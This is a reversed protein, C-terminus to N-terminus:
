EPEGSAADVLVSIGRQVPLKIQLFISSRMFNSPKFIERKFWEPSMEPDLHAYRDVTRHPWSESLKEHRELKKLALLGAESMEKLAGSLKDLDLGELEPSASLVNVLSAHNDRWETLRTELYLRDKEAPNSVYRRATENFTWVSLSEPALHDIYPSLMLPGDYKAEEWDIGVLKLLLGLRSGMMSAFMEPRSVSALTVVPPAREPGLLQLFWHRVHTEHTFGMADLRKSHVLLRDYLQQESQSKTTERPSWLLEAIAISRPWIRMDITEPDVSETWVAAEGGLLDVADNAGPLDSPDNRYHQWATQMHDLYFGVNVVAPHKMEASSFAKTRWKSIAADGPHNGEAVEDWGIATRGAEKVFGVYKEMFWSKLDAESAFGNDQMFRQIEANAKWASTDVEDGGVHFYRDPFLAIMETIVSEILALNEPRVPNLPDSFLKEQGYLTQTKGPTSSLQPYAIQWSKSHGPLDFEPVVRVGRDAAYEILASIQDQTYHNGDSGKRHLEPHTKSEVRFGQDDSLHWHLVNMKYRSMADVQRQIVPLPMWHRAVDIMLGRWRYRPSDEIALCPLRSNEDVLQSLTSLARIAGYVNRAQITIKGQHIRLGYAEDTEITPFEAAPEGLEISLMGNSGPSSKLGLENGLRRIARDLRGHNDKGAPVSYTIESPIPYSGRCMEMHSPIPILNGPATTIASKDTVPTPETALSRSAHLLICLPLLVGAFLPLPVRQM